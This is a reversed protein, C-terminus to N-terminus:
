QSIKDIHENVYSLVIKLIRINDEKTYEKQGLMSLTARRMFKYSLIKGVISSVEYVVAKDTDKKNYISALIKRMASYLVNIKKGYIESFKSHANTQEKMMLIVFTDPVSESYLFHVYKNLLAKYLTIKEVKNLEPLNKVQKLEEQLFEIGYNLITEIINTYLGDKTKFYYSILSLNVGAHSCIERTTTSTFGKNAFLLIASNIIKRKSLNIRESSGDM